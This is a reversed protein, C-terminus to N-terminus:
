GSEINKRLRQLREVNEPSNKLECLPVLERRIYGWDLKPGQRALIGEVDLWDRDRGAFSKLVVMDEASATLLAAGPSFEFPTARRIMQEEFPIAALAIDVPVSNSTRCLVVRNQIGFTRADKIRGAFRGLIADVYSEEEGFGAFLSVDVDQTARPEGFRIVALGGIFCFRWDRQQMFQQIEAAAEFIGNM